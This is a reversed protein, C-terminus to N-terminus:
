KILHWGIAGKYPINMYHKSLFANCKTFHNKRGWEEPKAAAPHNDLLLLNKTADLLDVYRKPNKSWIMYVLRTHNHRLIFKILNETFIEWGKNEHSGYKGEDTTWVSNIMLIGQKAWMSLSNTTFVEKGGTNGNFYDLHVEDLIRKLAVPKRSSKSSFALGDIEDKSTYPSDGIIIVKLNYFPVELFPRFLVSLQAEPLVTNNDRRAKVFERLTVMYEKKFEEEIFLKWKADVSDWHANM